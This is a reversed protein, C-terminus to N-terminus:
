AACRLAVSTHRAAGRQPRGEGTRDRSHGLGLLVIDIRAEGQCVLPREERPDAGREGHEGAADDRRLPQVEMVVGHAPRDGSRRDCGPREEREAAM